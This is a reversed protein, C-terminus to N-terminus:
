PAIEQYTDALPVYYDNFFVGYPTSNTWRDSSLASASAAALGVVLVTITGLLSPKTHM